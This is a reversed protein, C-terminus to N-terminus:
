LCEYSPLSRLISFGDGIREKAPADQSAERGDIQISGSTLDELGAILRLLTSKGCGSPGVFVTFEGDKIELDLPKIVQLDGFNKTVQKLEIFGM